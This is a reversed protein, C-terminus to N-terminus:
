WNSAFADFAALKQKKSGGQAALLMGIRALNDNMAVFQELQANGNRDIAAILTNDNAASSGGRTFPSDRNLAANTIAEQESLAGSAVGRVEDFRSFYGSQSGFMQREIDLLVKAAESFDDFATTDGAEVRVKLAGYEDLANAQRDRLSLGNDGMNLEDLLARLSGTMQETADKIAQAREIGYLEELQAYEAASAGMDEFLDALRSFEDDLEDLAAGVPDKYAKLRDFVSRFELVDGLAKELDKAALLYNKQGESLGKIAGDAIADMLAATQAAAADEFTTVNKGKKLKGSKGTTDVRYKDNYTGISVAFDGMQADLQELIADLSEQFSDGIDSAGTRRKAGSGTVSMDGGGFSATGYKAGGIGALSMLGYTIGGGLLLGLQRPGLGAKGLLSGALSGVIQGGPIPLASGIAGGIAAGTGSGNIGFMGLLGNIQSGTQAGGFLGEFGADPFLGQLAGLVGGVPGASLYGSIGGSLLGSLEAPLRQGIQLELAEIIPRALNKGVSNFYTDPDMGAVTNADRRKGSVLVTDPDGKYTTNDNAPVGAPLNPRYGPNAMARAVEIHTEALLAAAEQARRFNQEIYDTQDDFSSKVERDIQRLAEGFMEEVFVQSQLQRAIKRFNAGDGAFLSELEGRISQTAGLYAKQIALRREIEETVERETEVMDRVVGLHEWAQAGLKEELGWMIQLVEAEDERGALTLQQIQQRRESAEIMEEIPRVLADQIVEKAEQADAIMQQFNVPQRESLEAIIDDLQRTAQSAQDILRPQEDFRENIRQISEAARDGFDALREADRASTDRRGRTNREKLSDLAAAEQQGLRTYAATLQDVDLNLAALGQRASEYRDRIAAAPDNAIQAGRTAVEVGTNSRAARLSAIRAENAAIDADQNRLVGAYAANGEAFTPDKSFGAIRELEAALLTRKSIAEDYNAQVAAMQANLSMMTVAVSREQQNNYAELAETVEEYSATTDNLVTVLAQHSRDVKEAEEGAKFMSYIFPGLVATAAFIAAGWPGSLFTALKGVRAATTGAAGTLGSLAFAAQPVQQAFITFASTGMQAQITVDQMQQGLQVFAVRNARASNTVAGFADTGKRQALVVAETSSKTRDLQAQVQQSVRLQAAMAASLQEESTALARAAAITERMEQSYVGEARAAAMTANAVERAAIARADQAAAASRLETINLDLSGGANRPISIARNLTQQAEDAFQTFQRRAKGLMRAADALFQAETQSDKRYRTTIFHPFEFAEAM